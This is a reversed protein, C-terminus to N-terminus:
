PADHSSRTCTFKLVAILIGAVTLTLGFSWRMFREIPLAYIGKEMMAFGQRM